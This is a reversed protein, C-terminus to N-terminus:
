WHELLISLLKLSSEIDQIMDHKSIDHPRIWKYSGHREPRLRVEDNEAHFIFPHMYVTRLGAPIQFKKGVHHCNIPLGTCHRIHKEVIDKRPTAKERSVWSVFEWRDAHIPHDESRKLILVKKKHTVLGVVVHRTNM